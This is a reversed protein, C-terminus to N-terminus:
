DKNKKTSIVQYEGEIVTQHDSKPRSQESVSEQNKSLKRGLWWMRIGLVVALVLIIGILVIFAFVGFVIAAGIAFTGVIVALVSALPNGTSTHRNLTYRVL